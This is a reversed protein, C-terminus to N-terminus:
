AIERMRNLRDELLLHGQCPEVFSEFRQSYCFLEASFSSMIILELTHIFEPHGNNGPHRRIYSNREGSRRDDKSPFISHTTGAEDQIALLETLFNDHRRLHSNSRCSKLKKSACLYRTYTRLTGPIVFHSCYFIFFSSTSRLRPDFCTQSHYMDYTANKSWRLPVNTSHYAFLSDRTSGCYSQM